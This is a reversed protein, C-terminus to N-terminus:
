DGSALALAMKYQAHLSRFGDANGGVDPHHTKSLRRFARRVDKVTPSAVQIGLVAFCEPVDEIPKGPLTLYFGTAGTWHEAHVYRGTEMAERDLAFAPVRSVDGYTEVRGSCSREVFIKKRTKKLIRHKHYGSGYGDGLNSDASCDDHYVYEQLSVRPAADNNPKRRRAAFISRWGLATSSMWHLRGNFDSTFTEIGGCSRIADQISDTCGHQPDKGEYCDDRSAWHVWFGKSPGIKAIAAFPKVVQSVNTKMSEKGDTVLASSEVEAKRRLSWLKQAAV